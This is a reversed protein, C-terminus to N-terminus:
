FPKVLGEVPVTRELAHGCSPSAHVPADRSRVSGSFCHAATVVWVLSVLSGGCAHKGNLRLSVQWPSQEITSDSGGVVRDQEGVAGCDILLDCVCLHSWLHNTKFFVFMSLFPLDKGSCSLAIVSGSLCTPRDPFLLSVARVQVFTLCTTPPLGLVEGKGVQQHDCRPPAGQNRTECRRPFCGSIFAPQPGPGEQERPEQRLHLLLFDSLLYHIAIPQRLHPQTPPNECRTAWSSALPAPTSCGGTKQM